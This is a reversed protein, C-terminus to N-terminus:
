ARQPTGQISELRQLMARAEALDAAIQLRLDDPGAFKKEDRLRERFFVELAGSTLKGSFDFLHSEISLGSGDFTPRFGVNTAAGYLRGAVKVQTAYVGTKPLLEQDPRLNLTPFLITSGRGHGPVIEGTLSFPRGLLRAADAPRGEIVARRVASSSVVEGGVVEPPVIEVAFDFEGGLAQLLRLDGAQKHGFRFNEGVVIASMRLGGLLIGTVFDRASLAAFDADFKLVVAADLGMSEIGALRQALTEVLPPAQAPRLVKLPHPDFTVAASLTQTTRALEVARRLIKRHGLHLGDFNGVSLTTHAGAPGFRASWEGASHIVAFDAARKSM